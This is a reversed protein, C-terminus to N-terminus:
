PWLLYKSNQAREFSKAAGGGSGSEQLEVGNLRFENFNLFTTRGDSTQVQVVNPHRPNIHKVSVSDGSRFDDSKTTTIDVKDGPLAAHLKPPPVRRITQKVGNQDTYSVTYPKRDFKIPDAV